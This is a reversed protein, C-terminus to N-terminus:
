RPYLVIIVFVILPGILADPGKVNMDADILGPFGNEGMAKLAKERTLEIDGDVEIGLKSLTGVPDSRYSSVDQSGATVDAIFKKINDINYQDTLKVNLDGFTATQTM